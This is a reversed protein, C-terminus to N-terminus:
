KGQREFDWQKMLGDKVQSAKTGMTNNSRHASYINGTGVCNESWEVSAWEMACAQMAKSLNGVDNKDGKLYKGISPRLGSTSLYGRKFLLNQIEPTFKEDTSVNSVRCISALTTPIFQYIGIASGGTARRRASENDMIERITCETPLKGLNPLKAGSGHGYWADFSSAEGHTVAVALPLLDKSVTSLDVDGGSSSIDVGHMEDCAQDYSPITGASGIVVPFQKDDDYFAINVWTGTRFGGSSVNGNTSYSVTAWPLMETPLKTKDETHIGFIRCQVRGKGLPDIKNEIVGVSLKM